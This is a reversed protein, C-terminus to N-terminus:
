DLTKMSRVLVQMGQIARDYSMRRLGLVALVGRRGEMAFPSSVLSFPQLEDIPNESGIWVAIGDENEPSLRQLASRITRPSELFRVLKKLREPESFEPEDLVNAVGMLELDGEEVDSFLDSGQHALERACREAQDDNADLGDLAGDRIERVSLGSIRESLIRAADQLVPPTFEEEVAITGTRVLANELVLVMLIRRGEKPYLELREARVTDWAPGLIIGINDTLRSLLAALAKVMAPSGSSRQLEREVVPVMASGPTAAGAGGDLMENVFRRVGKRTPIWGASTHPKALCGDDELRTMDARVTASSVAGGLWTAVLTSSVPAGAESYLRVVAALVRGERDHRQSM